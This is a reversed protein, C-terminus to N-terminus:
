VEGAKEFYEEIDKRWPENMEDLLDAIQRLIHPTFYGKQTIPWLVYFGDDARIIDDGLRARLEENTM